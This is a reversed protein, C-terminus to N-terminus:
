RTCYDMKIWIFSIHMNKKRVARQLANQSIEFARQQVFCWKRNLHMSVCCNYMVGYACIGCKYKGFCARACGCGSVTSCCIECGPLLHQRVHTLTCFHWINFDRSERPIPPYLKTVSENHSHSQLQQPKGSMLETVHTNTHKWTWVYICDRSQSPPHQRCAPPPPPPPPAPNVTWVSRRATRGASRNSDAAPLHVASVPVLLFYLTSYVPPFFCPLWFICWWWEQQCETPRSRLLRSHQWLCAFPRIPSDPMDTSAASPATSCRFQKASFVGRSMCLYVFWLGVKNNFIECCQSWITEFANLSDWLIEHLYKMIKTLKPRKMEFSCAVGFDQTQHLSCM